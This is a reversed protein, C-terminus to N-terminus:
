IGQLFYLLDRPGGEDVRVHSFFDFVEPPGVEGREEEEEPGWVPVIVRSFEDRRIPGSCRYRTTKGGGGRMRLAAAPAALGAM